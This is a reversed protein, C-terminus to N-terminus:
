YTPQPREIDGGGTIESRSVHWHIQETIGVVAEAPVPAVVVEVAAIGEVAVPEEGVGSTGAAVLTDEASAAEVM